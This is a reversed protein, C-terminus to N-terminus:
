RILPPPLTVWPNRGVFEELTTIENTHMYFSIDLGVYTIHWPEYIYGTIPMKGLGYRVIFGFLHANDAVWQGTPSLGLREAYRDLLGGTPDGLDLARGTQHESHYPRAVDGDRMGGNEWIRRQHSASRYASVVTLRIDDYRAADRMRRFAATTEPTARFPCNPGTVPVMGYPVFGSQLRFQPSVLLPNPDYNAVIDTYFPRDLRVNVM